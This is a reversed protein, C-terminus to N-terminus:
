MQPQAISLAYTVLPSNGRPFSRSGYAEKFKEIESYKEIYKYLNILKAIDKIITKM